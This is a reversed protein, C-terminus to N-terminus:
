KTLSGIVTQFPPNLQLLRLGHSMQLFPNDFLFYFSFIKENRPTQLTPLYAKVGTSGATSNRQGKQYEWLHVNCGALRLLGSRLLRFEM